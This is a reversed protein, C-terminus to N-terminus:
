HHLEVFTILMVHTLRLSYDHMTYVTGRLIVRTCGQCRVVSAIIFRVSIILEGCQPSTVGIREKYQVCDTSCM